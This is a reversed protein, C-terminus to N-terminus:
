GNEPTTSTDKEVNPPVSTELDASSVDELGTVSRLPTASVPALLGKPADEEPATPRFDKVYGKDFRVPFVERATDPDGEPTSTPPSPPALEFPNREQTM